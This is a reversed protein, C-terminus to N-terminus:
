RDKRAEVYLHWGLRRELARALATGSLAAGGPYIRLNLHRVQLQVDDFAAFLRRADNRTYVKSLPNGPGDTNNSLFLERDSLYRLGHERLLRRHGELLERSEGTTRAVVEVAGPVLLSAALLRRMGMITVWYNFSARHYLMVLATGGRRLVRRFEAVAGATDAVHHIVGHSYVLDFSEADFPLETVSNLVFRGDLAELDFRRRALEIAQPSMDVGTYRAGARAFRVGDTAIGCGAELVDRSAWREFRVVEPIHPELEYRAAEVEDFFAKTGVESRAFRFGPQHVDWFRSDRKTAPAPAPAEGIV